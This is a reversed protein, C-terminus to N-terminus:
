WKEQALNAILWTRHWQDLKGLWTEIREIDGSVLAGIEEQTLTYYGNLVNSSNDRSQALFEKNPAAGALVALISKRRKLREQLSLGKTKEIMEPQMM